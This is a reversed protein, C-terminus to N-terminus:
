LDWCAVCDLDITGSLQGWKGLPTWQLLVYFTFLREGWERKYFQQFMEVNTQGAPVTLRESELM